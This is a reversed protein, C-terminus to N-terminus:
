ICGHLKQYQMRGGGGEGGGGAGVVVSKCLYKIKLLCLSFLGPLAVIVLRLGELDDLPLPFLCSWVLVFRVFTHFSSLYIRKGLRPLRLALLISFRLFLIVCPLIYFLEGLLIFWLAVFIFVLVLVM